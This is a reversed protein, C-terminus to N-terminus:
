TISGGLSVGGGVIFERHQSIEYVLEGGVIFERHQAM